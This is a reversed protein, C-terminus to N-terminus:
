TVPFDNILVLHSLEVNSWSRESKELPCALGVDLWIRKFRQSNQSRNSFWNGFIDPLPIVCENTSSFRMNAVSIPLGLRAGMQDSRQGSNGWCLRSRCRQREKSDVRGDNVRDTALLERSISSGSIFISEVPDQSSHVIHDINRSVSQRSCLNLSSQNLM